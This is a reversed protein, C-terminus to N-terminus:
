AIIHSGHLRLADLLENVVHLLDLAYSVNGFFIGHSFVPLRELVLRLHELLDRAVREGGAQQYARKIGLLLPVTALLSSVRGSTLVSLLPFFSIFVGRM